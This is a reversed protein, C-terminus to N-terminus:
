GVCKRKVLPTANGAAVGFVHQAAVATLNLLQAVQLEIPRHVHEAVAVGVVLNAFGAQGLAEVGVGFVHAARAYYRVGIFHQRGKVLKQIM